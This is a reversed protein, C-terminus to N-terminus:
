KNDYMKVEGIFDMKGIAIGQNRLIAYAMSLHFFMNAVAFEEVFEKGIFHKGGLWSYTIEVEDAKSFDEVTFTRVIEKTKEIRTKLEAITSETDPMSVPDKGSLKALYGKTNDSILQIQRTFNFMDPAITAQIVEHEHVDREKIFADAKDLLHTATDLTRSVLTVFLEYKQNM